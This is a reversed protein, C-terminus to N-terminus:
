PGRRALKSVMDSITKHLLKGVLRWAMPEVEQFIRESFRRARIGPHIVRYAGVRPGFPGGSGSGLYGPMTKARYGSQFVLPYGPGKPEIPYNGRTGRDVFTYIADSTGERVSLGDPTVETQVDFSPKHQWSQTTRQRRTLIEREIQKAIPQMVKVRLGKPLLRLARMWEDLNHEIFVESM